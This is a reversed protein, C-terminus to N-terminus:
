RILVGKSIRGRIERITNFYSDFIGLIEYGKSNPEIVCKFNSTLQLENPQRVPHFEIHRDQYEVNLEVCTIALSLARDKPIGEDVVSVVQLFEYFVSLSESNNIKEFIVMTNIPNSSNIFCRVAMRNSDVKQPIYNPRQSLVDMVVPLYISAGDM